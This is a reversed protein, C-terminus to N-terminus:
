SSVMHPFALGYIAFKRGFRDLISLFIINGMVGGICITAGIWSSEHVDIIFDFPTQSPSQLKMLMPSLWGLGIGHSLSILTVLTISHIYIKRLVTENFNRNSCVM